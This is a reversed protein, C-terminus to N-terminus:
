DIECVQLKVKQPLQIISTWDDWGCCIFSRLYRAYVHLPYPSWEMQTQLRLCQMMVENLVLSCDLIEILDSETTVSHHIDLGGMWLMHIILKQPLLM